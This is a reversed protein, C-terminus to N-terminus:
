TQYSYKYKRHKPNEVKIVSVNFEYKISNVNILM